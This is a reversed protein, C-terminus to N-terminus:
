KVFSQDTLQLVQGTLSGSGGDLDTTPTTTPTGSSSGLSIGATPKCDVECPAAYPPHDDQKQCGAALASLALM